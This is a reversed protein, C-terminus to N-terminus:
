SKAIKHVCRICTNIEKTQRATDHKKCDDCSRFSKEHSFIYKVYFAYKSKRQM